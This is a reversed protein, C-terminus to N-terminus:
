EELLVFTIGLLIEEAGLDDVAKDMGSTKDGHLTIPKDTWGTSVCEGAIGHILTKWAAQHGYRFAHFRLILVEGANDDPEHILPAAACVLMDGKFVLVAHNDPLVKDRFYNIVAAEGHFYSMFQRDQKGLEVLKKLDKKRGLRSSYVTGSHRAESAKIVDFEFRYLRSQEVLGKRRALSMKDDDNVNVPMLIEMKKERRILYDLLDDFIKERAEPPCGPLSHPYGVHTERGEYDRAQVYALPKGDDGLAYRVTEPDINEEEYRERIERATVPLGTVSTYITAQIEELGQDPEYTRYIVKM